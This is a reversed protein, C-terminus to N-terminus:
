FQRLKEAGLAKTFIDVVQEDSRVFMLDISGDLVRERIFYYHVEIHETRAHFMPNRALQISSLNDCHIVVSRQMQIRLDGLLLELWAVECAVVVAGKYEAEASSLAVTPQKKSSWTIAASGLSFMIGNTKQLQQNHLRSNPITELESDSSSASVSEKSPEKHSKDTQPGSVKEKQINDGCQDENPTPVNFEQPIDLVGAKVNDFDMDQLVEENNLIEKELEQPFPEFVNELLPNYNHRNKNANQRNNRGNRSANRRSVPQFGEQNNHPADKPPLVPNLDPCEKIHHGGHCLGIVVREKLQSHWLEMDRDPITVGDFDEGPPEKIDGQERQEKHLSDFLPFDGPPDIHESFDSGMPQLIPSMLPRHLMFTDSFPNGPPLNAVSAYNRRPPSRLTPSSTSAAAIAVSSARKQMVVSTGM